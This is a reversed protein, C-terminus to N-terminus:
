PQDSVASMVLQDLCTRISMLTGARPFSTRHLIRVWTEPESPRFSIWVVRIARHGHTVAVGRSSPPHVSPVRGGIATRSRTRNPTSGRCVVIGERAFFGGFDSTTGALTNLRERPFVLLAHQSQQIVGGRPGAGEQQGIRSFRMRGRHLM